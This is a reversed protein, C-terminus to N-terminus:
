IHILSLCVIGLYLFASIVPIIVGNISLYICSMIVAPAFLRKKNIIWGLYILILTVCLEIGGQIFEPQSFHWRYIGDIGMVYFPVISLAIACLLVVLLKSEQFIKKM